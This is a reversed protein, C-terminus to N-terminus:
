NYRLIIRLNQAISHMVSTTLLRRLIFLEYAETTFNHKAIQKATAVLPVVSRKGFGAVTSPVIPCFTADTRNVSDAYLKSKRKETERVNKTGDNAKTPHFSATRIESVVAFDLLWESYVNGDVIWFNVDGPRSQLRVNQEDPVIVERKVEIGHERLHQSFTRALENHRAINRTKCIDVHRLKRDLPAGRRSNDKSKLNSCTNSDSQLFPFCLMRLILITALAPTIIPAVENQRFLPAALWVSSGAVTQSLINYKDEDSFNSSAMMHNFRAKQVAKTWEKQPEYEPQEDQKLVKYTFCLV